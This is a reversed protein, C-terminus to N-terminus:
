KINSYLEEYKQHMSDLSFTEFVFARNKKGISNMVDLNSIKDIEKIWSDEEKVIQLSPCKEEIERHQEIDSLICPLGCCMAELVAVPLGEYSSTSIFATCRLLEKYVENRPKAGLFLIRDELGFEKSCQKLDEELPGSGILELKVNPTKRIIQFLMKHRKLKVFRAVYVLTVEPYKEINGIANRVAEIREMDVGNQIYLVKSKLKNKLFTPYYKFSTKSVCVVNRVQFSALACFVKNHLPYNKYTSHLTYVIRNTYKWHTAINFMLVSKAEHIHFIVEKNESLIENVKKSLIKISKGVCYIPMDDNVVINKDIRNKFLLIVIQKESPYHKQRFLVFENYPMSTPAINDTITVICRSM